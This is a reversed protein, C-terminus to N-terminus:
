VAFRALFAVVRGAAVILDQVKAADEVEKRLETMRDVDAQTTIVGEELLELRAATYANFAADREPKLKIKDNIDAARYRLDIRLVASSAEQLTLADTDDM